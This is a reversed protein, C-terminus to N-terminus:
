RATEMAAAARRNEALPLLLTFAAGGADSRAILNGGHEQAIARSISLGLGMGAPKQTPGFAAFLDDRREAAIGPGNDAVTLRFWGEEARAMITVEVPRGGTGAEAANRLLNVLVQTVQVPDAHPVAIRAPIDRQVRPVDSRDVFALEVADDVLKAVDIPGHGTKRRAAFRRMRQVIAATRASERLARDILEGRSAPADSDFAFAARAAQLYLTLATLPQNLEHVLAASLDNLEADSANERKDEPTRPRRAPRFTVVFSVGRPHDLRAVTANAALEQGSASAIGVPVHIAGGLAARSAEHCARALSDSASHPRLPLVAMQQGALEDFGPGLLRSCARNLFSIRLRPDLIIIPDPLVHLVGAVAPDVDDVAIM